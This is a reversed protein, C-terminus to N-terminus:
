RIANWKWRGKRPLVQRRRLALSRQPADVKHSHVQPCQYRGQRVLPEEIRFLGFMVGANPELRPSSCDLVNKAPSAKSVRLVHM